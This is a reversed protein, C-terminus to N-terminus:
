KNEELERKKEKQTKGEQTAQSFMMAMTAHYGMPNEKKLEQSLKKPSRMKEIEVM